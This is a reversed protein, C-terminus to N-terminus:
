QRIWGPDGGARRLEQQLDDMAEQDDAVANEAKAIKARLKDVDTQFAPTSEQELTKQPDPYYQMKALGLEQKLVALQRQHFEMHSRLKEAKSRFYQEDHKESASGAPVREGGAQKKEKQKGGELKVSAMGLSNHSPLNDNTFVVVPKQKEKEHQVKLQRAVEGLSLSTASEQGRATAGALLMLGILFGCAAHERSNQM